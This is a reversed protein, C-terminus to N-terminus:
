SRTTESSETSNLSLSARMELIYDRCLQLKHLNERNNAESKGFRASWCRNCEGTPLVGLAFNRRCKVCRM